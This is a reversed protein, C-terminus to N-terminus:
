APPLDESEDLEVLEDVVAQTDAGLARGAWRMEAPTRM